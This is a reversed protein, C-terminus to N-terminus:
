TTRKRAVWSKLIESVSWTSASIISNSRRLKIKGCKECTAQQLVAGGQLFLTAVADISEWKSWKHWCM